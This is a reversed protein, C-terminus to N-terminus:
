FFRKTKISKTYEQLRILALVDSNKGILSLGRNCSETKGLLKKFFM